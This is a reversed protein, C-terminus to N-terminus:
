TLERDEALWSPIVVVGNDGKEQVESEDAIQSKPLWVKKELPILRPNLEYEDEYDELRLVCLGDPSDHVAVVEVEVKDYRGM